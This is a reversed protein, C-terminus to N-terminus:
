EMQFLYLRMPLYVGSGEGRVKARRIPKKHKHPMESDIIKRKVGGGANGVRRARFLHGENVEIGPAGPAWFRPVQPVESM